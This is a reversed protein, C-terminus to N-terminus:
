EDCTRLASTDHSARVRSVCACMDITHLSNSLFTNKKMRKTEISGRGLDESRRFLSFFYHPEFKSEQRFKSGKKTWFLFVFVFLSWRATFVETVEKQREFSINSRFLPEGVGFTLWKTISASIRCSLRKCLPSNPPITNTRRTWVM